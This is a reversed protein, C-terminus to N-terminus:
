FVKVEGYLGDYGPSLRVEGARMRRVSEATKKNSFKEIDEIASNLLIEFESGLKAILEDYVKRVRVSGTSKVELAEAILKDLEIIKTFGPANPLAYGEKRSEGYSEIVAARTALEDVRSAVGITLKKGCVPCLGAHKDAESPGYGIKCDRHGDIHYMGGEPYYELTGKLVKIDRKKIAQYIEDYTFKKLDLITAERGLNALSHADSSSLMTLKDLQPVRWNMEPDSSLGTEFAFINKAESGFCEKFDNFGSKSGFVSFWPTWIHAPYILFKPHVNLVLKVFEPASIGLIPRGDSKLNFRAGLLKNLERVAELSPAHLVLHLRRVRVSDKYILAVESTLTFKVKDDQSDQYKYVGAGQKTEILDRELEGFWEPHTFDGTGLIDIGKIRAAKDLNAINLEPSCARSFRSHIHFDAIQKM